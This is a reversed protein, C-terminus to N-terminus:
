APAEEASSARFTLRIATGEFDRAERLRRELYRRYSFHLLKPDNVFVVFGPPDVSPQTAYRLKLRRSHMVPPSHERVARRLIANLEGTPIRRRRAERAEAARAAEGIAVGVVQGEGPRRGRYQQAAAGDDAPTLVLTDPYAARWRGWEALSAPLLRLTAGALPGAIASGLPQSWVSGTDHDYWTMAGLYLAGQNGFASAPAGDNHRRDHALATYCLPCWSVLVPVGGVVDNVLERRYLIGLPYARAAGNVALGIILADDPLDADAAAVFQPAYVPPIDDRRRLQVYNADAFGDAAMGDAGIVEDISGDFYSGDFGAGYDAAANLTLTTPPMPTPPTPGAGACGAALLAAAVASAARAASKILRM